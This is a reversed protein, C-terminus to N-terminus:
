EFADKFLEIRNDIFEQTIEDEFISLEGIFTGTEPEGLHNKLTDSFFYDNSQQYLFGKSSNKDNNIINFFFVIKM